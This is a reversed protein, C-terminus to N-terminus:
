TILVYSISRNTVRGVIGNTQGDTRGGNVIKADTRTSDSLEDMWINASVWESVM